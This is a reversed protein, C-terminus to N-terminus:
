TIRIHHPLFNTTPFYKCCHRLCSDVISHAAMIASAKVLRETPSPQSDPIFDLDDDDNQNANYNEQIGATNGGEVNDDKFVEFLLHLPVALRIVHSNGRAFLGTFLTKIM